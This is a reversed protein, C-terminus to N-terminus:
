KFLSNYYAILATMRDDMSLSKDDRTKLFEELEAKKNALVSPADKIKKIELLTNNYHVLYTETTKMSQEVTSSSYPKSETITKNFYKYLSANGTHLWLYWGEKLGVAKPMGTFHIFRYNVAKTSDSLIIEKITNLAVRELGTPDLYHIENSYLDIKIPVNKQEKNDPFVVLGNMWENKFYPTGSVLKTFKTTVFPEGGVIFFSRALDADTATIDTTRQAKCMMAVGLFCLVFCAKM